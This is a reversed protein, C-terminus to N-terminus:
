IAPDGEMEIDIVGDRGTNIDPDNTVAMFNFSRTFGGEGTLEAANNNKNAKWGRITEINQVTPNAQFKLFSKKTEADDSFVSEVINGAVQTTIAQEGQGDRFALSNSVIFFPVNNVILVPNTLKTSAM